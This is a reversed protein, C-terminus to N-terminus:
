VCSLDISLRNVISQKEGAVASVIGQSYASATSPPAALFGCSGDRFKKTGGSQFRTEAHRM